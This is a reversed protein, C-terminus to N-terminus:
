IGVIAHEDQLKAKAEITAKLQKEFLYNSECVLTRLDESIQRLISDVQMRTQLSANIVKESDFKAQETQAIWESESINSPIFCASFLVLIWHLIM